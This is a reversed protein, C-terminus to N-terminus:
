LRTVTVSATQTYGGATMTVTIRNTGLVLPMSGFWSPTSGGCNCIWSLRLTGSAGNADNRWDLTYPGLRGFVPPPLLGTCGTDPCTSEPPLFGEGNLWIEPQTTTLSPPEEITLAYQPEHSGGGGCGALFSPALLLLAVGAVLAHLSSKRRM